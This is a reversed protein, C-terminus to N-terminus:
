AILEVGEDRINRYFPLTDVWYNFHEINKVIPSIEIGYKLMFDFACDSVHDTTRKIEEESLSVLIMVDVDSRATYDGRAYSGYLIVNNLTEGYMCRMEDSFKYLIDRINNPMKDGKREKKTERQVPLETNKKVIDICRNNYAQLRNLCAINSVHLIKRLALISDDKDMNSTIAGDMHLREVVDGLMDYAVREEDTITNKKNRELIAADYEAQLNLWFTKPIDFAYELGIAFNASIGKKGAIVNSVYAASVGTRIALEAQTIGRDELNEAIITGPHIITGCEM